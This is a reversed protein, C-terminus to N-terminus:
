VIATIKLIWRARVWYDIMYAPLFHRFVVCMHRVALSISYCLLLIVVWIKHVSMGFPLLFKDLSPGAFLSVPSSEASQEFSISGGM